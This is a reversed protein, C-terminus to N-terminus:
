RIKSITSAFGAPKVSVCTPCSRQLHVNHHSKQQNVLLPKSPPFDTPQVTLQGTTPPLPPPLISSTLMTNRASQDKNPQSTITSPCTMKTQGTPNFTVGFMVDGRGFANKVKHGACSDDQTASQSISSHVISVRERKDEISLYDPLSDQLSM